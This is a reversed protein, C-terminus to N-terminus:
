TKIIGKLLHKITDPISLSLKKSTDILKVYDEIEDDKWTVFVRREKIMAIHEYDHDPFAWFCSVCFKIEKSKVNECHECAWSKLRQHSGCLPMFDEIKLDESDGAILYPVRHDIQLVGSPYKSNCLNCKQDYHKFLDQRFKKPFATRGKFNDNNGSQDPDLSYIGMRAGTEPHKGFTTKLKVGAEKLDQAARPPQDYGLQGLEYTSVSGNEVIKELVTRPRKGLTRLLQEIKKQDIAM